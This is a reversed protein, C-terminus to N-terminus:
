YLLTCYLVYDDNSGLNFYFMIILLEANGAATARLLLSLTSYNLLVSGAEGLERLTQDISNMSDVPTATNPDYFARSNSLM